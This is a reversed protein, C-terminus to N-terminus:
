LQVCYEKVASCLIGKSSSCLIGKSSFVINRQQQVCYEKVASCLIGKSSSM